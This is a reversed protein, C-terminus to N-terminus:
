GRVAIHFVPLLMLGIDSAPLSGWSAWHFSGQYGSLNQIVQVQYILLYHLCGSIVCRYTGSELASVSYFGSAFEIHGMDERVVVGYM